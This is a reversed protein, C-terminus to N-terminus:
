GEQSSRKCKRLHQCGLISPIIHGYRFTTNSAAVASQEAAKNQKYNWLWQAVDTDPTDGKNSHKAQLKAEPVSWVNWADAYVKM